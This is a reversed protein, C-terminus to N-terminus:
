SAAKLASIANGSRSTAHATYSHQMLTSVILRTIVANPTSMAAKPMM